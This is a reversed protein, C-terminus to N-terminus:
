QTMAQGDQAGTKGSGFIHPPSKVALSREARQFEVPRQIQPGHCSVTYLWCSWSPQIRPCPEFAMRLVGNLRLLSGGNKFNGILEKKKTDVSIVPEGKAQAAVVKGNIHEFQANRRPHHTREDAERNVQCSFGLVDTLLNGVHVTRTLRLRRM